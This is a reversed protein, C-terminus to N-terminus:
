PITKRGKGVIWKRYYDRVKTGGRVRQDALKLEEDILKKFADIPQAGSLHRGNVFFTPTANVGFKALEAQDDAVQKVCPGDMDATFRGLDLGLHAALAEMKTRSLDRGALFGKDYIANAMDVYRGQKGAACAAQAPLTAVQPHVVMNRYVVKLTGPYDVLLQAITPRVKECYPCAFERAEVITVKAHAAGEFPHGDAPVAYTLAPDPRGPRPPPPPPPVPAPPPPNVHEAMARMLEEAGEAAAEEREARQEEWEAMREELALLQRELAELRRSLREERAAAPDPAIAVPTAPAPRPDGCAAALVMILVTHRM